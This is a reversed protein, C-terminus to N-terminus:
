SFIRCILSIYVVISTYRDFKNVYPCGILMRKFFQSKEIKPNLYGQVTVLKFESRLHMSYKSSLM